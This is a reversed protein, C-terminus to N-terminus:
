PLLSKVLSQIKQAVEFETVEANVVYWGRHQAYRQYACYITEYFSIEEAIDPIEDGRSLRRNIATETPVSLLIGIPQPALGFTGEVIALRDSEPALSMHGFSSHYTLYSLDWRDAIVIDYTLLGATVRLAKERHLKDFLATIVPLRYNTGEPLTPKETEVVLVSYGMSRLRQCLHAIQSTKGAGDQAEIALFVGQKNM